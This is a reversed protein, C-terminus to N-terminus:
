CLKLSSVANHMRCNSLDMHCPSGPSVRIFKRSCNSGSYLEVCNKGPQISNIRDNDYTDALNYCIRREMRLSKSSGVFGPKLFYTVVASANLGDFYILLLLFILPAFTKNKM